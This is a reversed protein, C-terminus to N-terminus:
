DIFNSSVQVSARAALPTNAPCRLSQYTSEGTSLRARAATVRRHRNTFFRDMCDVSLTIDHANFIAPNSRNQIVIEVFGPMSGLRTNLERAASFDFFVGAFDKSQHVVAPNFQLETSFNTRSLSAIQVDVDDEAGEPDAVGADIEAACSCIMVAASVLAIARNHTASGM